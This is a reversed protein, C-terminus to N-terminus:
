AAKSQVTEPLTLRRSPISWCKGMYQTVDKVGDWYGIEYYPIGQEKAWRKTIVSAEALRQHSIRPFLHHEIQHDLGIFFYSMWRPMIFNRTTEFQLRWIDEPDEVVPLGVHAPAFVLSLVLGAVTWIGAYLFLASLGFFAVPVVVWAVVHICLCALDLRLAPRFGRSRIERGLHALGSVRMSWVLFLTLPWFMVGQLHRQFWQRPKSSREHDALTSAMPWLLIDPDVDVVNPHAHHKIDHKHHWYQGSVGGFIPFTLNYMLRNRNANKSLGRHSGEHGIMAAVACLAGTIPILLASYLLPLFTHLVILGAVTGILLAFKGWSRAECSEFIGANEFETRLSKTKLM